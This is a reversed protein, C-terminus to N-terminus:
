TVAHKPQVVAMTNLTWSALLLKPVRGFSQLAECVLEVLTPCMLGELRAIPVSGESLEPISVRRLLAITDLTQAWSVEPRLCFLFVHADLHAKHLSGACQKWAGLWKDHMGVVFIGAAHRQLSAIQLTSSARSAPCASHCVKVMLAATRLVGESIKECEAYCRAEAPPLSERLRRFEAYVRVSAPPFESLLRCTEKTTMGLAVQTAARSAVAGPRCAHQSQQLWPLHYTNVM